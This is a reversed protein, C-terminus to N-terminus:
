IRMQYSCPQKWWGSIYRIGSNGVETDSLVLSKLLTLGSLFIVLFKMSYMMSGIWINSEEFRLYESSSLLLGTLNVLGEDGIQCSDLNLYELKTLGTL